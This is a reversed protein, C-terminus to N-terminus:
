ASEAPQTLHPYAWDDPPMEYFEDPFPANQFMNIRLWRDSKPDFKNAGFFALKCRLLNLPLLDAGILNDQIEAYPFRLAIQVRRAAHRHVPHKLLFGALRDDTDASALAAYLMAVDRGIALPQELEAGPEAAREGLRPELKNESVYWFRAQAAPATYDTKIAWGYREEILSKFAGITMSADIRFRGGEDIAMTDALDDVLDGHAEIMLSVLMEQGELSLAKEAWRYLADWPREGATREVDLQATLKALDKQLGNIRKAQRKDEVQWTACDAAARAVLEAFHAGTEPTADALSRVRALATERATLWRDFLAPHNVIFPGLGLGTSNGVGLRRRLNKDLRVATGPSRIAAMYETLDTTFQRILWVTLMEARFPGAFEPRAAIRDRDAMGFKGNGYVATTRMLYGVEDLRAAEPQRGASLEGVVYEFLRASRNVRSLILDSDLFRGVEQGPTNGALRAIDEDDPVGDFLTFTGDWAEAIVRDTRMAPDLDHAFCVLSYTREPGRAEYVAVGVGDADIEWRSREVQWHEAHLRRLLARLFSLRTQHAAGLRDLKMVVEPPRLPIALVGNDDPAQM